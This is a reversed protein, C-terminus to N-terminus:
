FFFHLDNSFHPSVQLSLSLFFILHKARILIEMLAELWYYGSAAM